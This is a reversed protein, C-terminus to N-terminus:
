DLQDQILSSLKLSDPCLHICWSPLCSVPMTFPANEYPHMVRREPVFGWDISELQSDDYMHISYSRAGMLTYAGPDVVMFLM